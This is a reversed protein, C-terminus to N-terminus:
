WLLTITPYEALIKKVPPSTEATTPVTAM